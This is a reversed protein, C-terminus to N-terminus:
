FGLKFTLGFSRTSPAQGGEIFASQLKASSTSGTVNMESPDINPCASYILWLNSAVFSVSATSLGINLKELLKRDVQYALSVERLKLYTRDYVWNDNDYEALYHYYQYANMLCDVEEGTTADVGHVNVGGGNVIAERECVGNSNNKVTNDLMGSGTGWMNTWSVMQGGIMFDFNMGLSLNRWSVNTSFGGTWDPQFNGVEKEEDDRYVPLYGGGWLASSTKKLLLQGEENRAWRNSTTIVGVPKGEVAKFNWAYYFKNNTLTTETIGDTLKVLKNVNKSINLDVDWKWDRNRFLNAGLSIEIGHNNILGCNMRQAYYGSAGTRQLEFIQQSTNKVYWNVDGWIRDNLLRFATGFEYSETLTPRISSDTVVGSHYFSTMNGYKASYYPNDLEYTDLTSGVQAMSARVKWYSLWDLQVFKDLMVSLSAGGYKYSNANNSNPSDFRSDWDKRFSGDLFYTDDFGVTATFYRSQTKFNRKTNSSSVYDSSNRINWWGTGNVLGNSTSSYIYSYHYTREEFFAALDVSLRNDLLRDGWTLRGQVTIDTIHYKALDYTSPSINRAGEAYKNERENNRTDMMVKAGGKINYPLKVEMDASLINGFSTHYRNMENLIGFPNDHFNARLNDASVPNWTRWTGDDRKYDRLDKINVNTQGWQVFDYFVNTPESYGEGAANHNQHYTFKYDGSITLWKTVDISAKLSLYRRVADSNELIGERQQNTFSIRTNYGSGSKSLSINTINSIGTQFLDSLDLQNVWPDAQMYHSSTPDYYLASAVKVNKDFRAGWSEDSYMDYQYSGDANRVIHLNEDKQAIAELGAWSMNDNGEIAYAEGNLGYSGGGYKNQLKIHNYYTEWKTTHSIDIRAKGGEAKKTTIMIAGNGGQSGYLATAAGGKLVNISEVDDMNVANKNTVIGDVVYIPESGVPNNFDNSGRLIVTGVDFTAGSGGLVRAGSVKGALSNAFDLQRAVSLDEGKLKQAAYGISKEKRTLGQATVVVDDLVQDNVSLSVSMSSKVPLEVTTMGVYSFRLTKVNQPVSISFNGDVDTTTGETSNPIMVSAGIIPEGDDSSTVIGKVIMSEQASLTTMGLLLM